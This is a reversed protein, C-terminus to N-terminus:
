RSREAPEASPPPSVPPTLYAPGPQGLLWRLGGVLDLLQERPIQSIAGVLGAIPSSQAAAASPSVQGFGGLLTAVPSTPASPPSARPPSTGALSAPDLVGLIARCAILGAARADAGAEPGCAARITTILEDLQPAHDLTKQQDPTGSM